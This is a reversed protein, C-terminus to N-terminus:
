VFDKMSEVHEVIKKYYKSMYTFAGEVKMFNSNWSNNLCDDIEYEFFRNEVHGLSIGQDSSRVGTEFAKIHDLGLANNVGAGRGDEEILISASRRSLNYIHAHVRFGIHLDCDDYAKMGESGFAINECQCGLSEITNKLLLAAEANEKTTFKDEEFGRHFVFRYEVDPLVRKLYSVLKIALGSNFPKAPDSICIKKIGKSLDRSFTTQNVYDLNYWAPCGTMLGNVIGSNRLINVSYWDRCGLFKTDSEIRKFLDLTPGKLQYNYVTATEGDYGFWGMGLSFMPLKLDDLNKTLPMHLPYLGDIYGPGGGFVIIDKSNIEEKHEDLSLLRNYETIECEPYVSKILRKARDVILFDGANKVAGSLLAIKM